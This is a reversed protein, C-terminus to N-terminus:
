GSGQGEMRSLSAVTLQDLDESDDNDISAWLLSRLNRAYSVNDAKAPAHIQALESICEASFEPSTRAPDHDRQRNKSPHNPEPDDNGTDIARPDRLVIM